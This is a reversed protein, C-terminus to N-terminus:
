FFSDLYDDETSTSTKVLTVQSEAISQEIFEETIKDDMCFMVSLIIALNSNSIVFVNDKKSNMVETVFRQNVSGGFLDTFIVGQEDDKLNNIFNVIQPTYDEDTMYANIIELEAGRNALIDISSQIGKALEGHSAVLFKKNM